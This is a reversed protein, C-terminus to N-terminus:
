SGAAHVLLMSDSKSISSHWIGMRAQSHSLDVKACISVFPYLRNGLARGHHSPSPINILM